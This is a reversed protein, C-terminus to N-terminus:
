KRPGLDEPRMGPLVRVMSITTWEDRGDDYHLHLREGQKDVVIAPFYQAGRQWRAFVLGGIHINLPALRTVPVRGKDGDDYHVVINEGEIDHVVAPYFFPEPPWNALVRDGIKWPIERLIRVVSITNNELRGNDYRLLIRDGDQRDVHAPAYYPGARWRAYVRTGVGVTLYEIKNFPVTARDGDDYFVRVGDHECSQVTGPYWYHDLHWEALVREGPQWDKRPM